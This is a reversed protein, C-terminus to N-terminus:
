KKAEGTAKIKSFYKFRRAAYRNMLKQVEDPSMASLIYLTGRVGKAAEVIDLKEAKSVMAAMSKVNISM